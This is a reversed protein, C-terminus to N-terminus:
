VMIGRKRLRAAMAKGISYRPTGSAVPSGRKRTPKSAKIAALRAIRAGFTARLPIGADRLAAEVDEGSRALWWRHGNQTLRDRTLKQAETLSAKHKCEIWLTVGRWVILIDPIGAKVGRAKRMMGIVASSSRGIDISTWYADLPLARDFFAKYTRQDAWERQVPAPVPATV